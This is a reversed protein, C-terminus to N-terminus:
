ALSTLETTKSRIEEGTMADLITKKTPKMASQQRKHFVEFM